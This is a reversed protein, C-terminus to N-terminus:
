AAQSAKELAEVWKPKNSRQSNDEESDQSGSPNRGSGRQDRPDSSQNQSNNEPSSAGAGPRWVEARMGANDMRSVFDNLGSRLTQATEADGTRVSVHIEGGRDVFRVDVAHESADPIRVTIDHNSGSPTSPAELLPEMRTAASAGPTAAEKKIPAGEISADSQVQATAPALTDIKAVKELTTDVGGKVPAADADSAGTGPTATQKQPATTSDPQSSQQTLPASAATEEATPTLKAAFTLPESSPAPPADSADVAPPPDPRQQDIPAPNSSSTSPQAAANTQADATYLSTPADTTQTLPNQAILSLVELLPQAVHLSVALVRGPDQKKAQDPSDATSSDSDDDGSPPTGSTEMMPLPTTGPQEVQPAPGSLSTSTQDAADTQAGATSPSPQAETTQTLPNQAILPLVEHLPQAAHLPVTLIRGPEQKKPQDQPDTGSSDSDDDGSSSAQYKNLVSHFDSQSDDDEISPSGSRDTAPNAQSASAFLHGRGM